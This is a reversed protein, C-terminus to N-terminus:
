TNNKHFPNIKKLKQISFFNGNKNENNFKTASFQIVFDCFKLDLFPGQFAKPGVKRRILFPGKQFTHTHTHCVSDHRFIYCSVIIFQNSLLEIQFVTKAM